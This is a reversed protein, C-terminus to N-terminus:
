SKRRILGRKDPAGTGGAEAALALLKPDRPAIALAAALSRRARLSLGRGIFLKALEAHYEVKRPALEISKEFAAVADHLSSPNTALARGLGFQYAANGPVHHAAIRYNEIAAPYQGQQYCQGGRTFADAAIQEPSTLEPRKRSLDYEERLRPNSLTNFASTLDKFFRDADERQKPDTFRDPHRERVFRLYAKKIEANSAGEAVELVKYHDAV